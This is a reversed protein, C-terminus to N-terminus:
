FDKRSASRRLFLYPVLVWLISLVTVLLMGLSSGFLKKFVAGSFGLLASIDLQLILLIRSLDVPNFLTMGLVFNELPYDEFILLIILILGDYIIGMFLWVILALGFGRIRNENKIAILFAIGTFIFTLMIGSLLLTGFNMLEPSVFIGYFLFPIGLGLSLGTVLSLTVGLYQGTFISNRPLPQALLLEVFDRSSYFYLVGFMISVLPCLILLINMLSIVAKGPDASFYLLSGACILYLLFYAITWRSRLLDYLTFKLIKLM